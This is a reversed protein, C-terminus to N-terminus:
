ASLLSFARKVLRPSIRSFRDFDCAIELGPVVARAVPLRLDARTLDAYVPEYGWGTLMEELFELDQASDGTSFNPLDEIRTVPLDSLGPASAPGDPYPWAVETLASVLARRGDLGAGAAQVVNGDQGVVFARYCPLGFETTMDQFRVHVGRDEYDALLPGLVPDDTEVRFCRNPDFPTVADADRELVELLGRLRAGAMTSGSALGTSGLGGFLCVEGLDAFLFVIQFPILVENGRVDQAPMWHLEEDAYPVETRLLGPDLALRGQATLESHRAQILATPQRLGSVMGNKVGAFSSAREVIEMALSVRAEEWSLGRGYSTMLGEFKYRVLGSEVNVAMNWQRQMGCPALSAQHRMEPGTVIGYGYLREMAAAYVQAASPRKVSEPRTARRKWVEAPSPGQRIETGATLVELERRSGSLPRHEFINERFRVSWAKHLGRDNLAFHRLIMLPSSSTMSPWEPPALGERGDLLSAEAVLTLGPPQPWRDALSRLDDDGLGRILGLCHQHLFTDMPRAALLDVAEFLDVAQVPVPAFFAVGHGSHSHRLEYKLMGQMKGREAM